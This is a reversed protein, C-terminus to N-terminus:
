AANHEAADLSALIAQIPIRGGAVMQAGGRRLAVALPAAWRNEYVIIGAMSDPEIAAGAAALDDSDLMGSAAGEFVHLYEMGRPELRSLDVRMLEGNDLKRVFALDLIRIIGRDVLDVLHPLGEGSLKGHPFEVVMFDVPGM